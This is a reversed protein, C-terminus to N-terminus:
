SSISDSGDKTRLKMAVKSVANRKLQDFAVNEEAIEREIEERHDLVYSIAAHISSLSLEPYSALIDVPSQGGLFHWAFIDHVRIRTGQICPKGGCKEDRAEIYSTAVPSM